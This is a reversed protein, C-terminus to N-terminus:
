EKNYNKNLKPLVLRSGYNSEGNLFSNNKAYYM